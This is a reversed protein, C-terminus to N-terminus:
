RGFRKGLELEISQQPNSRRGESSLNRGGTKPTGKPRGSKKRPAAEPAAASIEDFKKVDSIEPKPTPTEPM